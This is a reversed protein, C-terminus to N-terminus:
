HGLSDLVAGVMPGMVLGVDMIDVMTMTTVPLPPIQQQTQMTWKLQLSPENMITEAVEAAVLPDGDMGLVRIINVCNAFLTAGM